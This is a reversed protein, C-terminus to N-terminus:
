VLPMRNTISGSYTIPIAATQPRGNILNNVTSAGVSTGFSNMGNLQYSSGLLSSSGGKITRMKRNNYRKMRLQRRKKSGGNMLLRSSIQNAPDSPDYNPNGTNVNFGITNYPNPFQSYQIGSGGRIKYSRRSRRHNKRVSRKM